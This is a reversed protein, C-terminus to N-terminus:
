RRPIMKNVPDFIYQFHVEITFFVIYIHNTSISFIYLSFSLNQIKPAFIKFLELTLEADNKCYEGYRELEEATFDVRRKGLANIVETGKEGIRYYEALAKLSGGVEITHLARAMSLTDLIGRPRIDFRWSLIAADFLANHALVLHEHLNLSDLYKKVQAQTGSFWEAHKGEEKIGVGITEFREDRIYEETTLKSLSFDKDYYTEM